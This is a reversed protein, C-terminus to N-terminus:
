NAVASCSDPSKREAILYGNKGAESVMQPNMLGDSWSPLGLWAQKVGAAHMDQILQTSDAQGWESVANVANNLVSKLLRKNLDYLKEESLKDVGRGILKGAEADPNPFVAPNYLERMKLAQNFANLVVKKQYNDVYDQKTLEQLVQELEANGDTTHVLLKTLWPGVAPLLTRLQPWKVDADTLIAESWLYMQPAGYLKSVNPNSAAKEQLTVIKGKEAVYSQYPQVIQQPDNKTVYLRFGYSKDPNLKPFAHTFQFGVDPAADFHVENNFKNAVVYVLSFQDKSLAFFDM